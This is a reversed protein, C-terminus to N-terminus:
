QESTCDELEEQLKVCNTCSILPHNPDGFTMKEGNEFQIVIYKHPGFEYRDIVKGEMGWNVKNSLNKLAVVKRNM